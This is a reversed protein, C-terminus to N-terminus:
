SSYIPKILDKNLMNKKELKIIKKYDGGELDNSNFGYLSINIALAIAKAISISIKIPLPISGCKSSFQFNSVYKGDWKFNTNM